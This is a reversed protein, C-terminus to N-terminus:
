DIDNLADQFLGQFRSPDLGKMKAEEMVEIFARYLEYSADRDQSMMEKMIKSKEENIIKRLQRKSIKM